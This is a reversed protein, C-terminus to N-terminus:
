EIVEGGKYMMKKNGDIVNNQRSQCSILRNIISQEKRRAELYLERLLEKKKNYDEELRGIRSMLAQIENRIGHFESEISKYAEDSVELIESKSVRVEDGNENIRLFNSSEEIVKVLSGKYIGYNM